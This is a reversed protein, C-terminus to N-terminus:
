FAGKDPAQRAGSTERVGRRDPKHGVSGKSEGACPMLGRSCTEYAGLM